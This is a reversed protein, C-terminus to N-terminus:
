FGYSLSFYGPQEVFVFINGSGIMRKNEMETLRNIILPYSGQICATVVQLAQHISSIMGYLSIRPRPNHLDM